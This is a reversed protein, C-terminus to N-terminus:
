ALHSGLEEPPHNEDQNKSDTLALPRQEFFGSLLYTSQAVEREVDRHLNDNGNFPVVWMFCLFIIPTSLIGGNKGLLLCAIVVLGMFLTFQKANGILFNALGKFGLTQQFERQVKATRLLQKGVINKQERSILSVNLKEDPIKGLFLRKNIFLPGNEIVVKLARNEERVTRIAVTLDQGAVKDQVRWKKAEAHWRKNLQELRVSEPLTLFTFINVIARDALKSFEDSQLKNEKM